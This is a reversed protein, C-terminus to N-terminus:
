LSSPCPQRDWDCFRLCHDMWSSSKQWQVSWTHKGFISYIFLDNLICWASIDSIDSSTMDIELCRILQNTPSSSRAPFNSWTWGRTHPFSIIFGSWTQYWHTAMDKSFTTMAFHHKEYNGNTLKACINWGKPLKETAPLWSPIDLNSFPEIHVRSERSEPFSILM